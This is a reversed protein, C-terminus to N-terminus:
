SFGLLKKEPCDTPYFMIAADLLDVLDSEKFICPIALSEPGCDRLIVYLAPLLVIPPVVFLEVQLEGLYPETTLDSSNGLAVRLLSELM